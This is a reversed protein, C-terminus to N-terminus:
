KRNQSGERRGKRWKLAETKRNIERKRKECRREREKERKM